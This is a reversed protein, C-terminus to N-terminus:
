ALESPPKARANLDMLTSQILTSQFVFDGVARSKREPPSGSAFLYGSEGLDQIQKKVLDSLIFEPNPPSNGKIDLGFVAM